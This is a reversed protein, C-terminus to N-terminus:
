TVSVVTVRALHGVKTSVSGALLEGLAGLGRRGLVIFDAKEREAVELIKGAPDGDEVILDVNTVGQGRLVEKETELIRRGVEALLEVSATPHIVNAPVTLGFDYVAPAVPKFRELIEPSINLSEALEYIRMPPVNRLLVHLLVARARFKAAIAAGILAAKRAHISGDLPILVTKVEPASTMAAGEM